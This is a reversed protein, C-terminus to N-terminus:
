GIEYARTLVKADQGTVRAQYKEPGASRECYDHPQSTLHRDAQNTWQPQQLDDSQQAHQSNKRGDIV